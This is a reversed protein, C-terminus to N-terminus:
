TTTPEIVQPAEVILNVTSVATTPDGVVRWSLVIEYEGPPPPAIIFSYAESVAQAVGPEAGFLNNEPFTLTFLPSSSRYSDLDAVEQGNVRAQYYTADDLWAAACARLEDETRGFFPPPELTSCNVTAPSAHIATGEAVVCTREVSASETWNAPLFFVPGSQGYGCREGTADVAPNVDVPMSVTWQYWRADWEGRTLGAWAEDPPLIEVAAAEPTTVVSTEAVTGTTTAVSSESVTESIAESSESVTGSIAESSEAVTDSTAGARGPSPSVPLCRRPWGLQSCVVRVLCLCRYGRM